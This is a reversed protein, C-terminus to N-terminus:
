TNVGVAAVLMIGSGDMCKSGSIMFPTSKNGKSYDKPVNKKILDSEGTISSEDMLIESSQVLIGDVPLMDGINIMNLDGVM